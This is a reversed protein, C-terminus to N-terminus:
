ASFQALAGKVNEPLPNDPLKMDAPGPGFRDATQSATATMAMGQEVMSLKVGRSMRSGLDTLIVESTKMPTVGLVESM